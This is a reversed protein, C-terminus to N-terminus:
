VWTASCVAYGAANKVAVKASPQAQYLQQLSQQAMEVIKKQQEEKSEAHSNMAVTLLLVVVMIVMIGGKTKQM